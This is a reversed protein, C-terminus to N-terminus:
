NQIGTDNYRCPQRNKYFPNRYKQKMKDEKTTRIMSSVAPTPLPARDTTTLSARIRACGASGSATHRWPPPRVGPFAAPRAPIPVASVSPVGGAAMPLVPEGSADLRDLLRLFREKHRRETELMSDLDFDDELTGTSQLLIGRGFHAARATIEELSGCAPPCTWNRGYSRCRDSACMERVEPLFRLASRELRGVHTFGAAQAWNFIVKDLPM